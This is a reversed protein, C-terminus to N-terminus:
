GQGNRSLLGDLHPLADIVVCDADPFVDEPDYLVPVLGAGRAGVIDAFYNDGVYIAAEPRIGAREVAHHFIEPDPKWSNVEGASLIFDFYATLGLSDVLEIYPRTRNSVV